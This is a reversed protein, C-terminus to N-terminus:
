VVSPNVTVSARATRSGPGFSTRTRTPAAPTHWESRDTMSPVIGNGGGTTRPWSPAPTTWAAPESTRDTFAPSWTTTAVRALQPVQRAQPVPWGVRQRRDRPFMPVGNVKSPCGAYLKAAVETKESSVTTESTWATRIGFSTGSVDAQRMPQPTSVPTPATSLRARTRGPSVAATNPTPPTPRLTMWPRRMAPAVRITATSVTASLSGNARWNPAVSKTSAESPSAA